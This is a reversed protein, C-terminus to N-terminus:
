EIRESDFGEKKIKELAEIVRGKFEQHTLENKNGKVGVSFTLLKDFSTGQQATFTTGIKM